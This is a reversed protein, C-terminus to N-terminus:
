VIIIKVRKVQTIKPLDVCRRGKILAQLLEKKEEVYETCMVQILM